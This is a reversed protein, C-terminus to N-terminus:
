HATWDLPLNATSDGGTYCNVRVKKIREEVCASVKTGPLDTTAEIIRGGPVVRFKVMLRGEESPLDSKFKQFCSTLDAQRVAGLVQREPKVNAPCKAPREVGTPPNTQGTVGADVTPAAGADISAEPLKPPEPKPPQVNPPPQERLLAYGAGAGVGLVTIGLLVGLLIIGLPGRRKDKDEGPRQAVSKTPGDSDNLMPYAIRPGSAAMAGNPDTKPSKPNAFGPVDWGKGALDPLSDIRTKQSMREDGFFQKM